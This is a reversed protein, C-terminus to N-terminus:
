KFLEYTSISKLVLYPLIFISTIYYYSPILYILILAIYGVYITLKEFKIETDVGKNLLLAIKGIKLIEILFLIIYITLSLKTNMLPFLLLSFIILNDTQAFIVKDILTNEEYNLVKLDELLKVIFVYLIYIIVLNQCIYSYLGFIDLMLLFIPLLSLGIIKLTKSNM